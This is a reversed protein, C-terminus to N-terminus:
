STPAATGLYFLDQGPTAHGTIALEGARPGNSFTQPLTRPAGNRLAVYVGAAQAILDGRVKSKGIGAGAGQMKLLDQLQSEKFGQPTLTATAAVGSLMMGVQGRADTTIPTLNYSPSITVPGRSKFSDFPTPGFSCSFDKTPIDTAAPPVDVLAEKTVTYLSNADEWDAGEKIFAMFAMQGLITQVASLAAPPPASIASNHLTIKRNQYTHIVTTEQEILGFDGTGADAIAVKNTAGEADAETPHFSIVDEESGEPHGVYYLTAADLGGPLTDAPFAAIRVPCGLRPRSSGILTLTDADADVSAVDHRPTILQGPTNRRFRYLVNLQALTYVGLPTGTIVYSNALARLDLPGYADSEVPFIESLPTATLGGRFDLKIGRHKVVAPGLPELALNM